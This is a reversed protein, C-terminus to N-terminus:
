QERKFRLFFICKGKTIPGFYLVFSKLLLCRKFFTFWEMPYKKKKKIEYKLYPHLERSKKFYFHNFLLRNKYKKPNEIITCNHGLQQHKNYLLFIFVVFFLYIFIQWYFNIAIKNCRVVAMSYLTSKKNYPVKRFM